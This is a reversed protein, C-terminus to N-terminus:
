YFEVYVMAGHIYFIILIFKTAHWTAVFTVPRVVNCYRKREKSVGVTIEFRDLRSTNREEPRAGIGSIRKALTSSESSAFFTFFVIILSPPPPPPPSSSSALGVNTRM